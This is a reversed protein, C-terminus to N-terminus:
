GRADSTQVDNYTAYREGLRGSRGKVTAGGDGPVCPWVECAVRQVCTIDGTMDGVVWTMFRSSVEKGTRGGQRLLEGKNM